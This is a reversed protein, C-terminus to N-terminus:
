ISQSTSAAMHTAVVAAALMYYVASYLLLSFVQLSKGKEANWMWCTFDESGAILVAGRPHWQLWTIGEDPGEISKILSGSSADWIKVQGAHNRVCDHCPVYWPVSGHSTVSSAKLRPQMPWTFLQMLWLKGDLGGTALYKGDFSFALSSVSDTHGGLEVAADTGVQEVLGSKLHM